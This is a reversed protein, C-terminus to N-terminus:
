WLGSVAMVAPDKFFFALVPTIRVAQKERLRIFRFFFQRPSDHESRTRGDRASRLLIQSYLWPRLHDRPRRTGAREFTM